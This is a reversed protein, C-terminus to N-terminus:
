DVSIHVHKDTSLERVKASLMTILKALDEPALGIWEVPKGFRIIVTKTQPDAAVAFSLAGDDEAGMRGRPYERRATGQLQDLMRRITASEEENSAPQGHHSTSM